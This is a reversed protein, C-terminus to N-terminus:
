PHRRSDHSGPSTPHNTKLAKRKSKLLAEIEDLESLSVSSADLLCQVLPAPAGNFANKLSYRLESAQAQERTLAPKFLTLNRLKESRLLGKQVMRDMFTRVTSYSWHTEPELAEQVDPAACPQKTWVVNLIKWESETLEFNHQTMTHNSIFLYM